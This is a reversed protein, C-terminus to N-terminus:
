VRWVNVETQEELHVENIFHEDPEAATTTLYMRSWPNVKKIFFREIVWYPFWKGIKSVM